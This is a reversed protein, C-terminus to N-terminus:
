IQFTDKESPAACLIM